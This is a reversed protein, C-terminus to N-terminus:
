RSGTAALTIAAYSNAGGPAESTPFLPYSRICLAPQFRRSPFVWKPRLVKLALL